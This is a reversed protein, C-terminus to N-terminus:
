KSRRITQNIAIRLSFIGVFFIFNNISFTSTSSIPSIGVLGSTFIGMKLIANASELELALLLGKILNAKLVRRRLACNEQATQRYSSSQIIFPLFLAVTSKILPLISTFITVAIVVIAFIDIVSAIISIINQADSFVSSLIPFMGLNDKVM